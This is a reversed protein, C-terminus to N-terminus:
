IDNTVENLLDLKDQYTTLLETSVLADEDAATQLVTVIFNKLQEKTVSQLFTKLSDWDPFEHIKGVLAAIVLNLKTEDSLAM